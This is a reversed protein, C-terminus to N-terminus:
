SGHLVMARRSRATEARHLLLLSYGFIFSLAYMVGYWRVQLPGFHILLRNLNDVLHM